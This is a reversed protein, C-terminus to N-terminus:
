NNKRKEYEDRQWSGCNACYADGIYQHFTVELSNCKVCKLPSLNYEANLIDYVNYTKEKKM